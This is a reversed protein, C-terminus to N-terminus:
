RASAIGPALLTNRLVFPGFYSGRASVSVCGLPSYCTAGTAEKVTYGAPRAPEGERVQDMGGDM